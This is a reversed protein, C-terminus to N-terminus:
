EYREVKTIKVTRKPKKPKEKQEEQLRKLIDKALGHSYLNARKTKFFNEINTIERLAKEDGKKYKKWAARYDNAALRIIENALDEYGERDLIKSM